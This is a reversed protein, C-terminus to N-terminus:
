SACVCGCLWARGAESDELMGPTACYRALSRLAATEGQGCWSTTTSWCRECHRAGKDLQSGLRDPRCCLPVAQQGISGHQQQRLWQQPSSCMWSAGERAGGGPSASTCHQSSCRTGCVHPRWPCAALTDQLRQCRRRQLLQQLLRGLRSLQRQQLQQDAPPRSLVRPPSAEGQQKRCRSQNWGTRSSPRVDSWRKLQEWARPLGSLIPQTSQCCSPM